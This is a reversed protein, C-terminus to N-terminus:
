FQGNGLLNPECLALNHEKLSKATKKPVGPINYFKM